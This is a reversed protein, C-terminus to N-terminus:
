LNQPDKLASEANRSRRLRLKPSAATTVGNASRHRSIKVNLPIIQRLSTSNDAIRKVSPVQVVPAPSNASLDRYLSVYLSASREWSFDQMMAQLQLRRWTLPQKYIALARDLGKKLGEANPEDFIFGTGSRDAITEPTIDTVTDVLGGTRRVVPLAGYRMAYIQTLGCPEFRAPALLIDCGAQLRHAQGEDYGIRVAVQNEFQAQAQVFGTELAAEGQGLLVFQAGRDVLSPLIELITDAMKQYTIRSVFGILPTELNIPLGFERQLERKCIRKGAIDNRAFAQPLHIDTAPDWLTKEIGNLIGTFDRQRECLLGELGFGFEPSLVEKAYNPSVTTVHDAFRLGAKLFSFQGYFEVDGNFFHEEPVGAAAVMERPFIGQFAMNHTTFITAPRPGKVRSLLLPLLGTHWDNAHVVDPNWGLGIQGRALDAAVHSLFAFRLANDPWDRGNECQYPGGERQFLSPADILYVPVDTGPLKGMVLKADEVSLMPPLTVISVPNELSALASPYGPLLLRVDVGCRKLALPLSYSVDALGGTKALPQAESTVFLVKM